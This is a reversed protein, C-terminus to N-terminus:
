EAKMVRVPTGDPGVKVDGPAKTAPPLDGNVTFSQVREREAGGFNGGVKIALNSRVTTPATFTVDVDVHEGKSFRTQTIPQGGRLLTFNTVSLGDVGWVEIKADTVDSSFGVSLSAKGAEVKGDIIVPASPKATRSGESMETGENTVTTAGNAHEADKQEANGCGLSITAVLFGLMMMKTNMDQKEKM